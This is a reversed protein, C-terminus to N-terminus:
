NKFLAEDLDEENMIKILEDDAMIVWQYDSTRVLEKLQDLYSKKDEGAPIWQDFYSNSILWSNPGAYVDV